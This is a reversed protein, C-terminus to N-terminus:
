APRRRIYATVKGDKVSGVRIGMQLRSQEERGIAFRSMPMDNKDVWVGSSARVAELQRPIKRTKDFVAVRSSHPRRVYVRDQSDVAIAHPETLQGDGTGHSAFSRLYKGDKSYVNIRSKNLKSGNGKPSSFTAPPFFPWARPSTSSTMGM